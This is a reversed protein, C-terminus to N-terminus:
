DKFAQYILTTVITFGFIALLKWVSAMIIVAAASVVCVAFSAHKVIFSFKNNSMAKSRKMRIASLANDIIAIHLVEKQM